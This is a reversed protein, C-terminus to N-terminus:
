FGDPVSEVMMSDDTMSNELAGGTAKDKTKTRRPKRLGATPRSPQIIEERLKDDPYFLEDKLINVVVFPTNAPDQVDDIEARTAFVYVAGPQHSKFGKCGSLVSARRRAHIRLRGQDTESM